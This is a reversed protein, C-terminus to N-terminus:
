KHLLLDFIEEIRNNTPIFSKYKRLSFKRRNWLPNDTHQNLYEYRDDLLAMFENSLKLKKVLLPRDDNFALVEDLSLKNILMYDCLETYDNEIVNTLNSLNRMRDFHKEEFKENNGFLEVIYGKKSNMFLTILRQKLGDIDHQYQKALGIFLDIDRKRSDLSNEDYRDCFSDTYIFEEKDFHLKIGLYMGFVKVVTNIDTM